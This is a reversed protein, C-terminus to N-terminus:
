HYNNNRNIRNSYKYQYAHNPRRRNEKINKVNDSKNESKQSHEEKEKPSGIVKFVLSFLLEIYRLKTKDNTNQSVYIKKLDIKTSCSLDNSIRLLRIETEIHQVKVKL